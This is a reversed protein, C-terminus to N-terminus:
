PQMQQLAVQLNTMENNFIQLFQDRSQLGANYIHTKMLITEFLLVFSLFPKRINSTRM